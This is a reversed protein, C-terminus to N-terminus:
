AICGQFLVRDGPSQIIVHRQNCVLFLDHRDAGKEAACRPIAADRIQTDTIMLELVLGSSGRLKVRM